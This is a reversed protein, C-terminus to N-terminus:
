ATRRGGEPTTSIGTSAEAGGSPLRDPAVDPRASGAINWAREVSPGWGVRYPVDFTRRLSYGKAGSVSWRKGHPRRRRGSRRRYSSPASRCRRARNTKHECRCDARPSSRTSTVCASQRRAFRCIMTSIPTHCSNAVFHAMAAKFDTIVANQPLRSQDKPSKDSIM